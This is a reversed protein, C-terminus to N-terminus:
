ALQQWDTGGRCFWLHNLKDVVRWVMWAHIRNRVARVIVRTLANFLVRSRSAREPLARPLDLIYAM